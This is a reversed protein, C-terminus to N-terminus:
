VKMCRSYKLVWVVVWLVGLVSLSGRIGRGSGLVILSLVRASNRAGGRTIVKGMDRGGRLGM